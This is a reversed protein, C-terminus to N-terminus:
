VTISSTHACLEEWASTLAAPSVVALEQGQCAPQHSLYEKQLHETLETHSVATGFHPCHSVHPLGDGHQVSLQAQLPRAKELRSSLRPHGKLPLRSAKIFGEQVCEAHYTTKTAPDLSWPCSHSKKILPWPPMSASLLVMNWNDVGMKLTKNSRQPHTNRSYLWLSLLPLLLLDAQFSQFFLAMATM